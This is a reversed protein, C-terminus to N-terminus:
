LPSSHLSPPLDPHPNYNDNNSMDWNDFGHNAADGNPNAIPWSDLLNDNCNISVYGYSIHLLSLELTLQEQIAYCWVGKISSACQTSEGHKKRM